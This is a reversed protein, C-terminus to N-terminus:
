TFSCIWICLQYAAIQFISSHTLAQTLHRLNQCMKEDRIHFPLRIGPRREQLPLQPVLKM